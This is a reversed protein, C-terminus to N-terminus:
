QGAVKTTLALGSVGGVIFSPFAFIAMTIESQIFIASLLVGITIGGFMGCVVLMLILFEEMGFSESTLFSLRSLEVRYYWLVTYASAIAAFMAAVRMGPSLLGILGLQILLALALFGASTSVVFRAAGILFRIM